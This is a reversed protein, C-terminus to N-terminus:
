SHSAATWFNIYFNLHALVHERTWYLCINCESVFPFRIYPARSKANSDIQTSGQKFLKVCFMLFLNQKFCLRFIIAVIVHLNCLCIFSLKFYKRWRKYLSAIFYFTVLSFSIVKNKMDTNEIQKFVQILMFM